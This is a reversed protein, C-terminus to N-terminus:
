SPWLMTTLVDTFNYHESPQFQLFLMTVIVDLLGSDSKM